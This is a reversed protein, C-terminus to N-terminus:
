LQPSETTEKVSVGTDGGCLLRVYGATVGALVDVRKARNGGVRQCM